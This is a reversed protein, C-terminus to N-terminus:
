DFLEEEQIIKTFTKTPPEPIEDDEPEWECYMRYDYGTVDEPIWKKYNNGTYGEIEENM